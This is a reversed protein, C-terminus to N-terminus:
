HLAKSVRSSKESIKCGIRPIADKVGVITVVAHKGQKHVQLM